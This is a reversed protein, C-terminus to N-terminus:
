YEYTTAVAVRQKWAVCSSEGRQQAVFSVDELYGCKQVGAGEPRPVSNFARPPQLQPQGPVCLLSSM